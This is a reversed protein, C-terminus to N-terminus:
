AVGWLAPVNPPEWGALTTHGQICSYTVGQYTRLDGPVVTQGPAWEIIGPEPEAGIERWGSDFTGPEWANNARDSVWEKGNHTVEFGEPYTDHSGTPAVWQPLVGEIEPEDHWASVGPTWVNNPTTSKWLRGGHAVVAGKPYSSWEGTEPDPSPMVWQPAFREPFTPDAGYGPGCYVVPELEPDAQTEAYPDRTEEWTGGLRSECWEKSNAVIVRTVLGDAIQAFYRPM